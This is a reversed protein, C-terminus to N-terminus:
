EGWFELRDAPIGREEAQALIEAKLYAYDEADYKEPDIIEGDEDLDYESKQHGIEAYLEADPDYDNGVFGDKDALKALMYLGSEIEKTCERMPGGMYEVKIKNEMKNEKEELNAKCYQIENETRAIAEATTM